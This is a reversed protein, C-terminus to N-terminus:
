DLKIVQVFDLNDFDVYPLALFNNQTVKIVRAVLIDQPFIKTSGSTLLLDGIKPMKGGKIFSSTLYKGDSTGKVIAFFQNSLNKVPVSSNQDKILIAESKNNSVTIIKGVLGRENIIVLDQSIGQKLGANIVITKAYIDPSKSVVYATKVIKNYNSTSNLLKKYANNETQNKLAITQWKKLRSVEEELKLNQQKLYRMKNISNFVNASIQVPFNVITTVPTIVDISLSKIKKIVIYDTKNFTILLFTLIFLISLYLNSFSKSRTFTRIKKKNFM